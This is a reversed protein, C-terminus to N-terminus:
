TQVGGDASLFVIFGFFCLGRRASSKGVLDRYGRGTGRSRAVATIDEAVEANFEGERGFGWFGV